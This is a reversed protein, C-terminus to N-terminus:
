STVRITAENQGGGANIKTRSSYHGGVQGSWDQTLQLLM